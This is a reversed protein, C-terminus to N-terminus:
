SSAVLYRYSQLYAVLSLCNIAVKRVLNKGQIETFIRVSVQCSEIDRINGPKGSLHDGQNSSWIHSIFGPTFRCYKRPPATPFTEHPVFAYTPGAPPAYAPPPAQYYNATPPTYMQPQRSYHRSATM